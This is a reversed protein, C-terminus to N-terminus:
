EAPAGLLTKFRALEGANLDSVAWFHMGGRTWRMLHFGQREFSREHAGGAAPWVFLNILHQRHRYVLAAVPRRDVYDLRGGVLAFGQTTFDSVPPAFDLKGAFWPKVAHTDSSAVGAAQGAMMSRVHGAVVEDALRDEAGPVALYVGIGLVLAFAASFASAVAWPNWRPRSAPKGADTEHPLSALVRAALGPPAAHYQAEGKIREALTRAEAEEADM